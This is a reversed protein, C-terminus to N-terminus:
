CGEGQMFPLSSQFFAEICCYVKRTRTPIFSQSAYNHALTRQAPAKVKGGASNIILSGGREERSPIGKTKPFPPPSSHWTGSMQCLSHQTIRREMVYPDSRGRQGGVGTMRSFFPLTGM